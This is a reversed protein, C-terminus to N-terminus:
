EESGGMLRRLMLMTSRNMQQVEGETRSMGTAVEDIRGHLRSIGGLSIEHKRTREELVAVRMRLDALDEPDPEPKPATAPPASASRGIIGLRQLALAVGGLLIIIAAVGAFAQWAEPPIM